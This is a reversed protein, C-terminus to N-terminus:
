KTFVWCILVKDFFHFFGRTSNSSDEQSEWGTDEQMAPEWAVRLFINTEQGAPPWFQPWDPPQLIKKKKRRKGKRKKTLFQFSKKSFFFFFFFFFSFIDGTPLCIDVRVTSLFCVKKLAPRHRGEHSAGLDTM